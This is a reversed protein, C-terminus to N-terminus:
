RKSFDTWQGNELVRLSKRFMTFTKGSNIGLSFDVPPVITQKSPLLEIMLPPSFEDEQLIREVDHKDSKCIGIFYNM